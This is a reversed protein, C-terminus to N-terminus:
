PKLTITAKGNLQQLQYNFGVELKTHVLDFDKTATARYPNERSAIVEVTDMDITMANKGKRGNKSTSCSGVVSLVVAM